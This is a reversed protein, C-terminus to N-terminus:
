TTRWARQGNRARSGDEPKGHGRAVPPTAAGPEAKKGGLAPMLEAPEVHLVRALALVEAVTPERKGKVLRNMSSPELGAERGIAAQSRDDKEVLRGLRQHFDSAAQM